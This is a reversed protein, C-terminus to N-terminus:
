PGNTAPALTTLGNTPAPTVPNPTLDSTPAPTTPQPTVPSKTPTETPNCDIPTGGICQGSVNCTEGGNCMDGDDCDSNSLCKVCQDLPESCFPMPSSCIIPSADQCGNVTDCTEAGNCYEGDDCLLHNPSSTCLGTSPTCFDVTCAITDGCTVATGAVCQGSANCTEIGNCLNGDACDVESLCSVCAGLADSCTDNPATCTPATGSECTGLNCTEQGNCFSGDDCDGDSTCQTTLDATYTVKGTFMLSNHFSYAYEGALNFNVAAGPHVMAYDDEVIGFNNSYYLIDGGNDYAVLLGVKNGRPVNISLGSIACYDWAGCAAAQKAYVWGNSLLNTGSAYGTKGGVRYYVRVNGSATYAKYEISTISLDADPKAEVDFMAGDRAWCSQCDDPQITNPGATCDAACNTSSEGGECIDNGCCLLIPINLCGLVNTGATFQPLCSSTFCGGALDQCHLDSTCQDFGIKLNATGPLTGANISNVKIKLDAYDVIGPVSLESYSASTDLLGILRSQSYGVGDNGEVQIVNVLNDALDNQLNPGAARNFGVFIDQPTGTEIKITVPKDGRLDYEGVGVMNGEWTADMPDLTIKADNYWGDIQFNKAPNFCMNGVEDSFLPNGMMGTHDTYGGVSVYGGSWSIGNSGSHALNLAHGMEHVQVGPYSIYNGKYMQGWSNVSAYAAWTCSDSANPLCVERSFMIHDFPGPLSTIVAGTPDLALMTKEVFLNWIDSKSMGAMNVGMDIELVGPASEIGELSTFAGNGWAPDPEPKTVLKGFSCAELQSAMNVADNLTGFVDDSIQWPTKSDFPYDIFKGKVVLTYKNGVLQALNRRGSAARGSGGGQGKGKGSARANQKVKFGPPLTVSSGKRSAGPIRGLDLRASGSVIQGKNMADELDSRQSDDLGSMDAVTGDAFTCAWELGSADGELARGHGINHGEEGPIMLHDIALLTCDEDPSAHYDGDETLVPSPQDDQPNSPGKGKENGSGKGNGRLKGTVPLICACYLALNIAPPIFKM